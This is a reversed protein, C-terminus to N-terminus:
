LSYAEQYFYKSSSPSADYNLSTLLVLLKFYAVYTLDKGLLQYLIDIENKVKYITGITSVVNELMICKDREPFLSTTLGLLLSRICAGWIRCTFASLSHQYKELDM